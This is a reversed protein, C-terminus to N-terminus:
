FFMIYRFIFDLVIIYVHIYINNEKEYNIQSMSKVVLNNFVEEEDSYLEGEDHGHDSDCCFWHASESLQPCEYKVIQKNQFRYNNYNKNSNMTIYGRILDKFCEVDDM